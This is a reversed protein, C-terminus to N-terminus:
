THRSGLPTPLHPCLCRPRPPHPAAEASVKSLCTLGMQLALAPPPGSSAVLISVSPDTHTRCHSQPSPSASKSLLPYTQSTHFSCAFPQVHPCVVRLPMFAPPGSPLAPTVWAWAGALLGIGLGVVPCDTHPVLACGPRQGGARGQVGLLSQPQHIVDLFCM